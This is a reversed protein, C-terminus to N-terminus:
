SPLLTGFGFTWAPRAAQASGETLVLATYAAGAETVGRLGQGRPGATGRLCLTNHVQMSTHLHARPQPGFESGKGLRAPGPEAAGLPASVTCIHRSGAVPAQRGLTPPSSSRAFEDSPQSENNHAWFLSVPARGPGRTGQLGYTRCEEEVGQEGSM